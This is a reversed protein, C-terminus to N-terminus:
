RIGVVAVCDGKVSSAAPYRYRCGAVESSGLANFVFEWAFGNEASLDIIYYNAKTTDYGAQVATGQLFAPFGVYPHANTGKLYWGGAGQIIGTSNITITALLTQRDGTYLMWFGAMQQTKQQDTLAPANSVATVVFSQKPQSWQLTATRGTSPFDSVTITKTLGTVFEAGASQVTKFQRVELQQGDAVVSITHDGVSLSNYNILLSFGTDARGCIGVTDARATGTGAKGYNAGDVTVTINSATCHWGSIIGIGSEISGAAPNELSGVAFVDHISLFLLAFAITLTKM